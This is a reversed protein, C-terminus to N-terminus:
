MQNLLLKVVNSSNICAIELFEDYKMEAHDNANDSISRIIIFPIGFQYCVQAIPASEMDVALAMDFHNIISSKTEQDGIFSDGSVILGTKMKVDVNSEIIHTVKSLLESDGTYHLPMGPVQGLEYNFNVADVDHHLVTESVVIDTVGVEEHLSGAVGTNIVYGVNFENLLLTTILSANVKGIGSEVLVISQNNLTGEYFTAHAIRTENSVEMDGLLIEVEPAMAGIIGIKTNTM